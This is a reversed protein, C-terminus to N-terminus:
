RGQLGVPQPQDHEYVVGVQTIVFYLEGTKGPLAPSAVAMWTPEPSGAGTTLDIMYGDVFDGKLVEGGVVGTAVLEELTGFDDLGDGDLDGDRFRAQAEHLSLLRARTAAEYERNPDPSRAAQLVYLAAAIMLTVTFFVALVFNNRPPV